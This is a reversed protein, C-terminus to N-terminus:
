RNSSRDRLRRRPSPLLAAPPAQGRSRGLELSGIDYPQNDLAPNDWWRGTEELGIHDQSSWTWVVDGDPTQEQIQIGTVTSSASGGYASTDVGPYNVQAGILYNGNPLLQIEHIDAAAGAAGRVVRLLRGTLTRIEYDGTQFSLEDVPDFAITGDPLVQFNDPEGSAVYWYIPVGNRDFIAAYHGGLQLSFMEPGGPEDRHFSYEPFSAPLCRVYYASSGGGDAKRFGVRVAKASNAHLKVDFSKRRFPGHGTRVRWGRAGEVHLVTDHPQCRVAYDHKSKAFRPTLLGDPSVTFSPKAGSALAAEGAALWAAALTSVVAAIWLM